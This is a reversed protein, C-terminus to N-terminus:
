VPSTISRSSVPQALDDGDGIARTVSRYTTMAVPLWCWRRWDPLRPASRLARSTGARCVGPSHGGFSRATGCRRRSLHSIPAPPVPPGACPTRALPKWRASSFRRSRSTPYGEGGYAIAPSDSPGRGPGSRSCKRASGARVSDPRPASSSLMAPAQGRGNSADVLASLERQRGVHRTAATISRAMGRNYPRIPGAAAGRRAHAAGPVCAM